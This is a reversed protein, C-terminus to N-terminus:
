EGRRRPRRLLGTRSCQCTRSCQSATTGRRCSSPPPRGAPSPAPPPSVVEPEVLEGALARLEYTTLPIGHTRFYNHLVIGVGYAMETPSRGSDLIEGVQGSMESGFALWTEQMRPFRSDEAEFALIQALPRPASLRGNVAADSEDLVSSM